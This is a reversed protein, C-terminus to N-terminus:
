SSNSYPPLAYLAHYESLGRHNRLSAYRVTGGLPLGSAAGNGQAQELEADFEKSVGFDVIHVVNGQRESGMLFNEPKVDRYIFSKSHVYKIRCLLQDALLLVTKLSFKRACYNFLDELSPGLLDTIMVDFDCEQGSWWVRPVGVGGSLAEYIDM